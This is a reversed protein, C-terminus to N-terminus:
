CCDVAETRPSGADAEPCHPSWAYICVTCLHAHLFFEGVCLISIFKLFINKAKQILVDGGRLTSEEFGMLSSEQFSFKSIKIM